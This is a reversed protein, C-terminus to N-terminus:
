NRSPDSPESASMAPEFRLQEFDYYDEPYTWPYALTAVDRFAHRVLRLTLDLAGSAKESAWKDHWQRPCLASDVALQVHGTHILLRAARLVCRRGAKTVKVDRHRRDEDMVAREVLGLEELSALMRSVTPAAVGLERRLKCQLMVGGAKQVIYLLDFRAPTLGLRALARRTVRLTSHYARKLGFFIINM